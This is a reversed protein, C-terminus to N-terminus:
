VLLVDAPIASPAEVDGHFGESVGREGHKIFLDAMRFVGGRPKFLIEVM